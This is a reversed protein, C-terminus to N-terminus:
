KCKRVIAIEEQINGRGAMFATQQCCLKVLNIAAAIAEESIMPPVSISVDDHQEEGENNDKDEGEAKVHFLVHLTAAIRLM